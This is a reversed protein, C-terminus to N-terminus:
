KGGFLEKIKGMAGGSLENENCTKVAQTFNGLGETFYPTQKHNNYINLFNFVPLFKLILCIVLASVAYQTGLTSSAISIIYISLIIMIISMKYKLVNKIMDLMGYTKESNNYKATLSLPFFICFLSICLSTIPIIFSIGLTFFLLVFIFIYLFSWMWNFYGFMEGSKWTTKDGANSTKESFLLSINYFWLIILYFFNVIGAFLYIFFACLPGFFILLTETFFSNLFNLATNTISFYNAILTQLITAIYLTYVNADPGSKMLRLKSLVGNKIMDLNKDVPFTLKTSYTKANGNIDTTKIINIDVLIKEINQAIDTYPACAINTPLLNTQSVRSIYLVLTGVLINIGLKWITTFLSSAFAGPGKKETSSTNNKKDDIATESM